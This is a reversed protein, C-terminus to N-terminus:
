FNINKIKEKIKKKLYDSCGDFINNMYILNNTNFDYFKLEELSSCWSFMYSIDTLNNSNFNLLNLEKLSSCGSFMHNMKTVNNTNFNSLNLEKLSSCWSFMNSMDTVKTTNFNSLNLEKLSECKSFMSSMDRVNDTNFNSLNLEKLSSCKYFMNNMNTINNRSFRKFIISSICKCSAFLQKFSKVQYNIIIKIKKVKENEKLYHRKIEEKSDDFYIHYYEYDQESINIFKGNENDILKLEIEISSYTQSYEKYYTININLKNQLKNNFRMIELAKKLNFLDFIKKLIYRSKLNESDLKLEIQKIKEDKSTNKTNM